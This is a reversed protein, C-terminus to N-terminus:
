VFIFSREFVYKREFNVKDIRLKERHKGITQSTHICMCTNKSETNNTVFFSNRVKARFIMTGLSAM